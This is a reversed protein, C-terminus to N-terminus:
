NCIGKFGAVSVTRLVPVSVPGLFPVAFRAWGCDSTGDGRDEFRSRFGAGFVPGCFPGLWLRQVRGATWFKDRFVSGFFPSRQCWWDFDDLSTHHNKICRVRGPKHCLWYRGHQVKRACTQFGRALSIERVSQRM